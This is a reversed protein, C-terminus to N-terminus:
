VSARTAALGPALISADRRRRVAQLFDFPAGTPTRGCAPDNQIRELIYGDPDLVFRASSPRARPVCSEPHGHQGRRGRPLSFHSANEWRDSHLCPSCTGRVPAAEYARSFVFSEEVLGVSKEAGTM